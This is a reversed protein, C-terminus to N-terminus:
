GQEPPMLEYREMLYCLCDQRVIREDLTFMSPMVPRRLRLIGDEVYFYERWVNRGREDRAELLEGGAGNVRALGTGEPLERFNLHDIDPLFDLTAGARGFGFDVAEPVTVTVVTHFLDIDHPAVPHVPIESLHLAAEIFEMAHDVGHAQGPRGCEVTVSPCLPAFALSAVGRPRTFYVLTRSFLTALHFYRHDIRNVCAYHPNLGTNNHVDIAAFIGRREMRQVVEALMAQEPGDPQDSGPWIRNYDPQGDLRRRGQAAASVNAFFVSLARPLKQERYKNLLKRVAYFGTDENGHLLVSVFLPAEQRGPLHLLTPAGLLAELETAEASLLGDPIDTTIKLM